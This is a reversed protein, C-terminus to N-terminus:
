RLSRLIATADVKTSHISGEEAVKSVGATEGFLVGMPDAVNAVPAPKEEVTSAPMEIVAIMDESESGGGELGVVVLGGGQGFIARWTEPFAEEFVGLAALGEGTEFSEEANGTGQGIEADRVGKEIGIGGKESDEIAGDVEKGAFEERVVGIMEDGAEDGEVVVGLSMRGDPIVEEVTEGIACKGEL